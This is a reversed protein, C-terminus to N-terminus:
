LSIGEKRAEEVRKMDQWTFNFRSFPAPNWKYEFHYKFDKDCHSECILDMNRDSVTFKGGHVAFFGRAIRHFPLMALTDERGRVQLVWIHEGKIEMPNGTFLDQCIGYPSQNRSTTGLITAHSVGEPDRISFMRHIKNWEEAHKTGLCHALLKGELEYDKQTLIPTVVYASEPDSWIPVNNDWPLPLWDILNEWKRRKLM